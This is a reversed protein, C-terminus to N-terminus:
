QAFPSRGDKPHDCNRKHDVSVTNQEQRRWLTYLFWNGVPLGGSIIPAEGTGYAGFVIPSGETGNQYIDLEGPFTGGRQFLVQDGPALNVMQQQVRAITKWATAESTGANVDNGTASVYYNTAGLHLPLLLALFIQFNRTM